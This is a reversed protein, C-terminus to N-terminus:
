YGPYRDWDVGEGESGGLLDDAAQILVDRLEVKEVWDAPIRSLGLYAGLINGTISGTSDSDGSHTVASILASKFDDRHKLACYVSIALAEEGVWGEGIQQIAETDAFDRHSLEVAKELKATCEEHEPYHQLEALSDAVATEIDTGGILSSILFALAGASLYGSPHGHTLAAFEAGRKFAEKKEYFLGAPAARMVGGCGKSNNIPDDMSGQTRSYLATLCTNGPARREHLEEMELLWGDYAWEYEAVRQHGQTLLWRQYAYFVISPPHTIGKLIGRTQARLIGEATFLTMQTDDTIEAKGSPALLLDQIGGPGYQQQINQLSLFEVPWGLADGIAGGLLCGRFSEQNRRTM